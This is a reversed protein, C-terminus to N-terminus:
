LNKSYVNNECVKDFWLQSVYTLFSSGWLYSVTLATYQWMIYILQDSSEAISIM